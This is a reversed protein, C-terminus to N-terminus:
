DEYKNNNKFASVIKPVIVVLLGIIILPVTKSVIDGGQPSKFFSVFTQFINNTQNKNRSRSTKFSQIINEILDNDRAYFQQGVTFSITYVTNDARKIIYQIGKVPYGNISYAATGKIGRIGNISVYDMEELNYVAFQSQMQRQTMEFLTVLDERRNSVTVNFNTRFNMRDEPALFTFIQVNQMQNETAEWETPYSVSFGKSNNTYTTMPQQAIVYMSMQTLFIILFVKKM